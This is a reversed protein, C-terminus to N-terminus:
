HHSLAHVRPAEAATWTRDMSRTCHSTSGEEKGENVMDNSPLFLGGTTQTPPEMREVLMYQWEAQM